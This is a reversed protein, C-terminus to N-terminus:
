DHNRVVVYHFEVQSYKSFETFVWHRRKSDLVFDSLASVVDESVRKILTERSPKPVLEFCADDIGRAFTSGDTGSSRRRARESEFTRRRDGKLNIVFWRCM